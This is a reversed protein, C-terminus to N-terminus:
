HSIDTGAQGGARQDAQEVQKWVGWLTDILNRMIAVGVSRIQMGIIRRHSSSVDEALPLTYAASRRMLANQILLDRADRQKEKVLTM